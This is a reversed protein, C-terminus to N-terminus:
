KLWTDRLLGRSKKLRPKKIPFDFSSTCLGFYWVGRRLSQLSKPCLWLGQVEDGSLLRMSFRQKLFKVAQTSRGLVLSGVLSRLTM